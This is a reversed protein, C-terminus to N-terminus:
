RTPLPCDAGKTCKGQGFYLCKGPRSVPEPTPIIPSEPDSSLAPASPKSGSRNRSPERSQTRSSPQSNALASRQAESLLYKVQTGDKKKPAEWKDRKEREEEPM